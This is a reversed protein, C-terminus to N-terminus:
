QFQSTKLWIELHLILAKVQDRSIHMEAGRTGLWVCSSGPKAMRTATFPEIITSAEVSCDQDYFDQFEVIAFGGPAKKQKGLRKVKM